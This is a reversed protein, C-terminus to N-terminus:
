IRWNLLNFFFDYPSKKGGYGGYGGGYGGWGGYGGYSKASSNTPNNALYQETRLRDWALFEGFTGENTGTGTGRYTIANPNNAVQNFNGNNNTVKQQGSFSVPNAKGQASQAMTSADYPNQTAPYGYPNQSNPNFTGWAVPNPLNQANANAKIFASNGGGAEPSYYVPSAANQPQQVMGAQQYLQQLFTAFNLSPDVGVARNRPKWSGQGTNIVTGPQNYTPNKPMYQALPNVHLGSPTPSTPKPQNAFQDSFSWQNPM